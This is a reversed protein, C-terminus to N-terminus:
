FVRGADADVVGLCKFFQALNGLWADRDVIGQAIFEVDDGVGDISGIRFGHLNGAVQQGFDSSM